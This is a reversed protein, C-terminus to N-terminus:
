LNYVVVMGHARAAEILKKVTAVTALCRPRAGCNGKMMDLVLLATTKPDVTVPKLEPVPPLKVSTWETTIDGAGAPLAACAAAIAVAAACGFKIAVSTM